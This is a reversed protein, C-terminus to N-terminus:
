RQYIPLFHYHISLSLMALSTVYVKGGEEDKVGLPWSGDDLQRDLLLERVVQQARRAYKGGRQFMGQAYYYMGYYFHEKEQLSPIDYDLFYDAAGRVEPTEYQGCIQLVCFGGAASGFRMTSDGPAYCFYGQSKDKDYPRYCRKVYDVARDIAEKPVEIGANRAARLAILQWAVVSLDSDASDPNYRWGGEHKKDDKRVAQAKLILEIASELRQRILKDQQDSAGMGMVEALMLTIIGQGYMRSGDRSGFYGKEDIRDPRLVYELAKRMAIGEPTEDAPKHGVGLMGMVALASMTTHNRNNEVIAGSDQQQKMLYAVAKEAARNVREWEKDDDLGVPVEVVTDSAAWLPQQVLMMAMLIGLITMRIVNPRTMTSGKGYGHGRRHTDNARLEKHFRTSIRM